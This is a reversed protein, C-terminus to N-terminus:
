TVMAEIRIKVSVNRIFSLSDSGMTICTFILQVYANKCFSVCVTGMVLNVEPLFASKGSIKYRSVRLVCGGVGLKDLDALWANHRMEFRVGNDVM